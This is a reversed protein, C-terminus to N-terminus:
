LIKVVEEKVMKCDGLAWVGLFIFACQHQANLLQYFSTLTGPLTLIYPPYRRKGDYALSVTSYLHPHM